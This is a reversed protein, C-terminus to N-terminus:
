MKSYLPDIELKNSKKDVRDGRVAATAQLLKQEQKESSKPLSYLRRLAPESMYGKPTNSSVVKSTKKVSPSNSHGEQQQQREKSM